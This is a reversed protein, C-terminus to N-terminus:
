IEIGLQQLINMEFEELIGGNGHATFPIRDYEDWVETMISLYEPTIEPIGFDVGKPNLFLKTLWERATTCAINDPYYAYDLYVDVLRDLQRKKFSRSLKQDNAQCLSHICWGLCRITDIVQNDTNLDKALRLWGLMIDFQEYIIYHAFSPHESEERYNNDDPILEILHDVTHRFYFLWMHWGSDRYITERVMYNFYVTAIWIKYNWLEPELHHDYEKVLFARQEEDFKLSKVAGEGVPYWVYNEAAAETNALLGYLIPLEYNEEIDKISSSSNNVIKLEQIFSQNKSEFLCEIFLKAFDQNSARKTEMGRFATAFMEPYKTAGAKVLQEDQLIHGYVSAAFSIRTPKVLVEYAKDSETRRRLIIDINEKEPLNSLGILYQQIDNIHYKTIYGSLLDIENQKLLSNYHAIVAQRKSKSFYGFLVKLTPVALLLLAIIYAWTEAPIGKKSTFISLWSFWNDLLWDFSMLFHVYLVGTLIAWLEARSFFLLIFSKEKKPIVTWVAVVITLITLFDSPKM